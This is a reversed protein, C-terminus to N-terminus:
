VVGPQNQNGGLLASLVSGGGFLGALGLMIDPSITPKKNTISKIQNPNFAIYHSTNRPIEMGFFKDAVTPDIIGDFGLNELISRAVDNGVLNGDYDEIFMKMIKDKMEQLGIGGNYYEEGLAARIEDAYKYDLGLDAVVDDGLNYILDQYYDDINDYDSLNMVPYESGDFLITKGVTAPNEMNLYADIKYPDTKLQKEAQELAEDYSLQSDATIDEALREIKNTLDPGGGWYNEAVDDMNDSFYFGRGWDSEPNAMDKNFVTFEGGASGHHVPILNGDADRIVSNKFYDMQEPTLANIVDDQPATLQPLLSQVDEPLERTRPYFGWEALDDGAHQIDRVNVKQSIVRGNGGLQDRLHNEAYTPSLTIWDGDNFTDGLTARYINIQGDPNGRVANLQAMTEDLVNKDMGTYFQPNDYIDKPLAIDDFGVKALDDAYVGTQTPRHSMFYDPDAHKAGYLDKLQKWFSKDADLSRTGTVMYKGNKGQSVGLGRLVDDAKNSAAMRAADDAKNAVARLADDAYNDLSNTLASLVGM